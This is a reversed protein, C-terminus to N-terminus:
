CCTAIAPARCTASAADGSAAGGRLLGGGGEGTRRPPPPDQGGGVPEPGGAGGGREAPGAGREAAGRGVGRRPPRPDLGDRQVPRLHARRPGPRRGGGAAERCGGCRRGRERSNGTAWLCFGVVGLAIGAEWAGVGEATEAWPERFFGAMAALEEGFAGLRYLGVFDDGQAIRKWYVDFARGREGTHCGHYVARYLPLMRELSRPQPEAAAQFHGFLVRHGAQWAAPSSTRLREAFYERILPHADLPADEEHGPGAAHVLRANRLARVTRNWAPAPLGCLLDTLDPIPPAARFADVAAHEAPRDFLSVVRLVQLEPKDRYWEEYSAMLRRFQRAQLSGAEALEGVEQPLARLAPRAKVDGGRRDRLFAGLLTLALAHGGYERSAEKLEEWAGHVKYSRLLEAGAEEPLVGLDIRRVANMGSEDDYLSLDAPPWRSTLVCLGRGDQALANLFAQLSEAENKFEGARPHGPPHLLPEVGDLICLTPRGRLKEALRAGRSWPGGQEPHPEGLWLLAENVFPDSSTQGGEGRQQDAFSYAVIREVGALRRKRMQDAWYRVLYSKGVGGLPSVVAVVRVTRDRWCRDLAQLEAAKGDPSRSFPKRPAPPLRELGWVEVEAAPEASCLRRLAECAEGDELLEEPRAPLNRCITALSRLDVRITGDASDRLRRRWRGAAGILQRDLGLDAWDREGIREDLVKLVRDTITAMM